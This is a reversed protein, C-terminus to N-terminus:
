CGFSATEGSEVVHFNGTSDVVLLNGRDPGNQIEVCGSNRGLQIIGGNAVITGNFNPGLSLFDGGNLGCITGEFGPGVDVEVETEGPVVTVCVKAASTKDPKVEIGGFSGAEGPEFCTKIPEEKKRKEQEKDPDESVSDAMVPAVLLGLLMVLYKM